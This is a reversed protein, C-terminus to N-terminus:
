STEDVSRNTLIFLFKTRSKQSRFDPSISIKRSKKPGFGELNEEFLLPSDGKGWNKNPFNPFDPIDLDKKEFPAWAPPLGPIKKTKRKNESM